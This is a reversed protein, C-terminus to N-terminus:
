HCPASYSFNVLRQVLSGCRFLLEEGGHRAALQVGIPLGAGSLAVPVTLSPHGSCSFPLNHTWDGTAGLGKPAPAPTTPTLLCDIGGLTASLKSTFLRRVQQARLYDVASVQGGADLLCSLKWGYRERHAAFRERHAAAMESYMTVIGADVGAEFSKPLKLQVVRAGAGKLADVLSDFARRTDADAKEGFYRDALGIRVESEATVGSPAMVSFLLAVDEVSRAMPGVHDMSWACPFVGTRDVAGYTPKLGVIGCYAAPRLISGATQTGISGPVLFAAVAAASGSSSGGPTHALNWPNRTPAPDMAAFETMHTKGLVIAGAARLRRVLPADEKPIFGALLSSGVNMELGATAVIDKIGIPVGHLAGGLRGAAAEAGLVAAEKLASDRALRVWAQVDRDVREIRALLAEVLTSPTLERRAIARAADAVGLKWPENM